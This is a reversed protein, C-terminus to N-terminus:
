NIFIIIVYNRLSTIDCDFLLWMGNENINYEKKFDYAYKQLQKYNLKPPVNNNKLRKIQLKYIKQTNIPIEITQTLKNNGNFM